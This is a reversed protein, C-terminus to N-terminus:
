QKKLIRNMHTAYEGWYRHPLNMATMLMITDAPNQMKFKNTEEDLESLTFLNGLTVQVPAFPHIHYQPQGKHHMHETGAISLPLIKVDGRLRNLFASINAGPAHLTGDPSRTGEPALIGINGQKHSLNYLIRRMSSFNIRNAERQGLKTIEDSTADQMNNCQAAHEGLRQVGESDYPQVVPLLNLQFRAYKHQLYPPFRCLMKNMRGDFFKLSTLYDIHNVTQEGNDQYGATEAIHLAIRLVELPDYTGPHNHTVLLSGTQLQQAARVIAQKNLIELPLHTGIEWLMSEIPRISERTM